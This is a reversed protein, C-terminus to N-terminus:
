RVNGGIMKYVPVGLAKASIDWLCHDIASIGALGLAGPPFRSQQMLINILYEVRSADQGKIFGFLYDLLPLLAKDPGHNYCEGWGTVGDETDIAVIVRPRDKDRTMFARLREIKM